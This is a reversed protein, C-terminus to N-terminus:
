QHGLMGKSNFPLQRTQRFRLNSWGDQVTKLQALRDAVALDHSEADHMGAACARDSIGLDCHEPDDYPLSSLDAQSYM